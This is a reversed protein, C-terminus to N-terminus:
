RQVKSMWSGVALAIRSKFAALLFAIGLGSLSLPDSELRWFEFQKESPRAFYPWWRNGAFFWNDAAPSILFASFVYQAALFSAVFTVALGVALRTDTWFTRQCKNARAIILDILVILVIPVVPGIFRVGAGNAGAVVALRRLRVRDGLVDGLFQRFAAVGRRAIAEVVM